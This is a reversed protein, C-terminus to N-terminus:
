CKLQTLHLNTDKYSIWLKGFTFTTSTNTLFVNNEQLTQLKIDMFGYIYTQQKFLIFTKM